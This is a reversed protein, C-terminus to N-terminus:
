PTDHDWGSGECAATRAWPAEHAHFLESGPVPGAHMASGEDDEGEDTDLGADPEQYTSVFGRRPDAVAAFTPNLLREVGPPERHRRCPHTFCSAVARGDFTSSAPEGARDAGPWGCERGRAGRRGGTQLGMPMPSPLQLRVCWGESMRDGCPKPLVPDTPATTSTDTCSTRWPATSNPDTSCPRRSPGRTQTSRSGSM